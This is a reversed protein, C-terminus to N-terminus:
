PDLQYYGLVPKSLPKAGILRCAMIQVLASGIWKPMYAASPLSTNFLLTLIKDLLSLKDIVIDELILMIDNLVPYSLIKRCYLGRAEWKGLWFVYGTSILYLLYIDSEEHGLGHKVFVSNKHYGPM